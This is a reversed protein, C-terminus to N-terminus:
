PENEPRGRLIVHPVRPKTRQVDIRWQFKIMIINFYKKEHYKFISVFLLLKTWCTQSIPVCNSVQLNLHMIILMGFVPERLLQVIIFRCLGLGWIKKGSSSIEHIFCGNFQSLEVNVKWTLTYHYTFWTHLLSNHTLHSVERDVAICVLEYLNKWTEHNRHEYVRAFSEGTIVKVRYM